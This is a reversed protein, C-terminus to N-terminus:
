LKIHPFRSNFDALKTSLKNKFEQDANSGPILSRHNIATRLSRIEQLLEQANQSLWSTKFAQWVCDIAQENPHILDSNYYRYDRLQDMLLEYSPFYFIRSLPDVIEHVGTLLHAKSRSNEIIGDKIHRVPSVTTIFVADPNVQGILTVIADLSQAVQNSSLLEKVFHKSPQKHCSAVIVNSEIHRYVWATGLTIIIHKAQTIAKNLLALANNLGDLVEQENLGNCSSHALFSFWIDDQKNLHSRTFEEQNIARLVLQEIALPHFLVGFPNVTNPLAFYNFKAAMNTAFCSGLFLTSNTYDVPFPQPTFTINTSRSM